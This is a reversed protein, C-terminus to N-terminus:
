STVWRIILGVVGWFALCGGVIAWFVLAKRWRPEDILPEEPQCMPWSEVGDCHWCVVMGDVQILQLGCDPTPCPRTLITIM